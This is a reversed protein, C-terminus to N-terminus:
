HTMLTNCILDVATDTLCVARREYRKNPKRACSYARGQTPKLNM